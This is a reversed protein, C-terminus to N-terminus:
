VAEGTTKSVRIRRGAENVKRGVRVPKGDKDVLAVNSADLAAEMVKIGGKPDQPSPRVHKKVQNVGEVLIKGESPIAKLVLGTKGKDKGALVLVRDGKKVKLAM